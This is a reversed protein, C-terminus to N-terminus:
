EKRRPAQRYSVVRELGLANLIGGGPERRAKLVDGVYSASLGHLKAWAAKSGAKECEGALLALVDSLTMRKVEVM